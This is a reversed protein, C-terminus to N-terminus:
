RKLEMVWVDAEWAALTFFLRKGDTSFQSNGLRHAADESLLLRPPGGAVPIAWFRFLGTSQRVSAYVTAGDGGWTVMLAVGGLQRQDALVRPAGGDTAIVAVDDERVYGVLKGDPSWKPYAEKLTDSTLRQPARWRGDSDRATVWLKRETATVSYFV